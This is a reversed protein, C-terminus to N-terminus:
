HHYVVLLSIQCSVFPDSVISEIFVYFEKMVKKQLVGLFHIM